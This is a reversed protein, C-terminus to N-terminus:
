DKWHGAAVRPKYEIIDGFPRFGVRTYVGIGDPSAQLVATTYGLAKADLLPRLTMATGFGRRRFAERTSINYLGVVGGGIALESAAVPSGDLYGVYFRLVSDSSLLIPTAMEYFRLVDPDPPTANAANIEAFHRLEEPARVRRIDLGEPSDVAALGRLDAAMGLESEARELGAEVLLAPLERPRDAPGHWWAFPRGVDRFYGIAERVRALADASELRARCVFNFTDCPIGSDVVVLGGEDLVKMKPDRGPVFSVHAVLNDDGASALEEGHWDSPTFVNM